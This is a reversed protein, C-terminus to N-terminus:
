GGAKSVVDAAREALRALKPFSGTERAHRALTRVALPIHELFGPRGLEAGLRAFAGLIQMNRSLAALRANEVVAKNRVSMFRSLLEAYREFLPDWDERVVPSYPDVALSAPDYGAPGLRGAQYDIFVCRDGPLVMINRTQCDRHLFVQDGSEELRSALTEFEEALDEYREPLGLRRGIFAEMFYRCEKELVTTKDFHGSQWCWAPNFDERGLAAMRALAPLVHEAHFRARARSTFGKLRTALHIDGADEMYVLGAFTDHGFLAPVPADARKLHAGLLRFSDAESPAPGSELHIGHDACVLTKGGQGIRWWTRDSGDGALRKLVVPGDGGLIRAAGTEMAARAFGQPAGIDHWRFCEPLVARIEGGRALHERFIDISSCFVGPPVGSFLSPDLVQIGTFALLRTGPAPPDPPFSRIFGDTDVGVTNFAPVDRMVLTASASGSLHFAALASFDLDTLVDANIALFPSPGLLPLANAIGGGTGLIEPEHLVHVPVPWSRSQIHREIREALHFTNVAVAEAGAAALREIHIDLLPTGDVRFLPKPLSETHPKLRTGLGAALIMARM